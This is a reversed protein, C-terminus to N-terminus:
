KEKLMLFVSITWFPALGLLWVVEGLFVLAGRILARVATRRTLQAGARGMGGMRQGYRRMYREFAENSLNGTKQLSELRSIATQVKKQIDQQARKKNDIIRDMRWKTWGVIISFVFVDIAIGVIKPIVVVGTIELIIDLADVLIAFFLILIFDPDMPNVGALEGAREVERTVEEESPLEEILEDTM